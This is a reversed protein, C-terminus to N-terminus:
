WLTSKINFRPRAKVEVFIKGIYEGVIGIAMLILSGLFWVSLMISPWGAMATDGFYAILVYLAVIIDILLLTLGVFFIMRMPRASFSTIGDVSFALMKKLPYKSEGAVREHRDYKVIATPLGIQPIIGRLFLNSEGYQSLIDLARSSMLRYDAHDYVTQLGMSAQFKYFARATTRKFWTDTARSARVGYVIEKGDLFADVMEIIANPDDQLDADISVAADCRDRVEMLGALLAYQHGRNHALTIGKVRPDQDHLRCIEDWTKDRSGDDVCLVFSESSIKGEDSLRNLINLLQPMTHQLAAEENYCPVVISITKSM